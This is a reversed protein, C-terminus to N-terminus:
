SPTFRQGDAFVKASVVSWGIMGSPAGIMKRIKYGTKRFSLFLSRTRASITRLLMFTVLLFYVMNCPITSNCGFNNPISTFAKVGNAVTLYLAIGHQQM